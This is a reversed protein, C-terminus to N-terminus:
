SVNLACQLENSLISEAHRLTAIFNRDSMRERTYSRVEDDLKIASFYNDLKVGISFTCSPMSNFDIIKLKSNAPINIVPLKSDIAFVVLDSNFILEKAKETHYGYKSRVFSMSSLGEIDRINAVQNSSSSIRHILTFKSPDYGFNKLAVCVQRATSGSGLIAVSEIESNIKNLSGQLAINCYSIKNKYVFDDFVKRLAVAENLLATGHEGLYGMVISQRLSIDMQMSIETEGILGSNLGCYTRLFQLKAEEAVLHSLDIGAKNFSNITYKIESITEDSVEDLFAYIEFRNCTSVLTIESVSDITKIQDLLLAFEDHSIKARLLEDSTCYILRDSLPNPHDNKLSTGIYVLSV